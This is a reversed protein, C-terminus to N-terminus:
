LAISFDEFIFWFSEEHSGFNITLQLTMKEFAWGPLYPAQSGNLADKGHFVSWCLQKLDM